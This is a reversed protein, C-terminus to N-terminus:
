ASHALQELIRNAGDARLREALSAGLAESDNPAGRLEGSVMSRGDATAVFGRLWLQGAEIVAYGGLPM